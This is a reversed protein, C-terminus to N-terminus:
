SRIIIESQNVNIDILDNNIGYGIVQIVSGTGTPEDTTITGAQTTSVFFVDRPLATVNEELLAKRVKCKSSTKSVVRGICPMTAIDSALAKDAKGNSNIYVYDNVEVGSEYELSLDSTVKKKLVNDSM